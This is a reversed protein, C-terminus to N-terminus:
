PVMFLSHIMHYRISVLTHAVKHKGLFMWPPQSGIPHRTQRKIPHRKGRLAPM